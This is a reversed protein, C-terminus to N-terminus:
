AARRMVCSMSSSFRAVFAQMAEPTYRVLRGVKVYQIDGRRRHRGLKSVSIGLIKATENPTYLLRPYDGHQNENSIRQLYM